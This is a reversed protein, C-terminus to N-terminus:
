HPANTKEEFLVDLMLSLWYWVDQNTQIDLAEDEEPEYDTTEM